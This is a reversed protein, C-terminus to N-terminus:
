TFKSSHDTQLEESFAVHAPEPYLKAMTVDDSKEKLEDKLSTINAEGSTEYSQLKSMGKDSKINGSLQDFLCKNLKGQFCKLDELNSNMSFIISSLDKNIQLVSSTENVQYDGTSIQFPNSVTSDTEQKSSITALPNYYLTALTNAKETKIPFVVTAAKSPTELAPTLSSSAIKVVPEIAKINVKLDTSPNCKDFAKAACMGQSTRKVTPYLLM